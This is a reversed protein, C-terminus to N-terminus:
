RTSSPTLYGIILSGLFLAFYRVTLVIEGSGGGQELVLWGLGYMIYKPLSPYDFNETDFDWEGALAIRVRKLIADPHWIRPIGWNIGALNLVIFLLILIIPLFKAYKSFFTKIKIM